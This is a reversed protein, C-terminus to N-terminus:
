RINVLVVRGRYIGHTKRTHSHLSCQLKFQCFGVVDLVDPEQRTRDIQSEFLALLLVSAGPLPYSCVFNTEAREGGPARVICFSTMATLM